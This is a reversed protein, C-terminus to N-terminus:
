SQGEPAADARPRTSTALDVLHRFRSRARQDGTTEAGHEVADDLDLEGTVLAFVIDPGGVIRLDPEDADGSDVAVQGDDVRITLSEGDVEVVVTLPGLDHPVALPDLLARLPLVLWRPRFQDTAKREGMLRAGWRALGDLVPVLEEGWNTLRYLTTAVPPPAVESTVVGSTELSRLRDALLNTAIGPLGDRLDTYRCPRIALERVILFTWRDGVVDLTKALPCYQDYLRVGM